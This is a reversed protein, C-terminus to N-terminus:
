DEYQAREQKTARRTSIIRIGIASVAERSLTHCVTLIRGAASMGMTIWREEDASHAEDVLSVVRPDRFVTTAEAFSVRHKALNATAKRPDWEFTLDMRPLTAAFAPTNLPFIDDPWRRACSLPPGLHHLLVPPFRPDTL